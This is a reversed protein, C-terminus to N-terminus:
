GGAAATVLEGDPPPAAITSGFVAEYAHRLAADVLVLDTQAGLAALSTVGHEAIGCPVIGAFHGLDPDVNLSAGHFSVWRRLRVGIAAIKAEGGELDSVWVGVRGTRTEGVIGLRALGGILWQEMAAVFAHVDRSRASLDLMVYAVRQGPGHYTYQGGRGAAFVPLRDPELLDERRAGLGATYLPPHQLLWVLEGAKGAAIAAARAEMAALAAPYDTLGPSEAWGTPVGDARAFRAATM